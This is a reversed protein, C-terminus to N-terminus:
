KVHLGGPLEGEASLGEKISAKMQEWVETLYEQADPEISFVYDPLRMDSDTLYKKIEEFTTLPYVDDAAIVKEGEFVIRGGGVSLVTHNAVEKGGEYVGILMTNPHSLNGRAGDFVIEASDGLVRKLVADTGHGKGTLALSGCLTIKFKADPHMAKLKLAAAEPGMSHSSSPGAGIRYLEKLSEM